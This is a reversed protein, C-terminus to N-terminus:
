MGPGFRCQVLGAVRELKGPAEDRLEMREFNGYFRSTVAFKESRGPSKRTIEYLQAFNDDRYGPIIKRKIPFQKRMVPFVRSFASYGM